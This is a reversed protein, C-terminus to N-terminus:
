KNGTKIKNIIIRTAKCPKDDDDDVRVVLNRTSTLIGAKGIIIDAKKRSDYIIGIKGSM